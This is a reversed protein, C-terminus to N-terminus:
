RECMNILKEKNIYSCIAPILTIIFLVLNYGFYVYMNDVGAWNHLNMLNFNDPNIHFYHNGMNGMIIYSYCWIFFIFLESEILAIIFNKTRSQVILGVNIYLGLGLLLTIFYIVPFLNNNMFSMNPLVFNLGVDATIDMNGKAVIFSILFTIVIIIPVFFISKYARKFLYKVYEKYSGRLCYNKIIKNKFENSTMYIFPLLVIIPIFVPFLLREGIFFEDFVNYASNPLVGYSAYQSCIEDNIVFDKNENIIKDKQEQTSSSLYTDCLAYSQEFGEHSEINSKIVRFWCFAYYLIFIIFLTLVLKSSFGLHKKYKM